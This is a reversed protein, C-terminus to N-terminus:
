ISNKLSITSHALYNFQTNFNMLDSTSFRNYKGFVFDSPSYLRKKSTNHLKKTINQRKNGNNKNARVKM